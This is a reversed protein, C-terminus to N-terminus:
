ISEKVKEFTEVMKTPDAKNKLNASFLKEFKTKDDKKLTTAYEQISKGSIREKSPFIEDNGCIVDLGGDIAGKLFAYVKGKKLPTLLGTDLIVQGEIKGKVKNALAYGTLYAAPINKLSYNWGKSTLYASDLGSLVLDGKVDFNIIQTIIKTKSIRVVLRPKESMLTRLRKKYDTKRERKRRFLVPKAKRNTM